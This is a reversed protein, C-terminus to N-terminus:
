IEWTLLPSANLDDLLCYKRIKSVFHQRSLVYFSTEFHSIPFFVLQDPGLHQSPRQVTGALQVMVRLPGQFTRREVQIEHEDVM